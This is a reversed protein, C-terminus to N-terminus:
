KSHLLIKSLSSEKGVPAILLGPRNNICGSKTLRWAISPSITLTFYRKIMRFVETLDVVREKINM